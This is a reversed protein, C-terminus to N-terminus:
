FDHNMQLRRKKYRSKIYAYSEAFKDNGRLKEFFTALSRSAQQETTELQAAIQRASPIEGGNKYCAIIEADAFMANQVVEAVATYLYLERLLCATLLKSLLRKTREQQLKFVLSMMRVIYRVSDDEASTVDPTDETAAILDFLETEGDGDKGQIKTNGSVTAAARDYEKKREKLLRIKLASNFYHMFIGNEPKFAKICAKATQIIEFGIESFDKRVIATLEALHNLFRREETAFLEADTVRDISFLPSGNILNELEERTEM